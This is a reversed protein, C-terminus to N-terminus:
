EGIVTGKGAAAQDTPLESTLEPAEMALSVNTKGDRAIFSAASLLKIFTDLDEQGPKAALSFEAAASEGAPLLSMSWRVTRSTDDYALSGHSSIVRDSWTIDPPLTATMVVDELDHQSAGINWFFRYITTQDVTPPLPGEGLPANTASFYRAESVVAPAANMQVTLPTTQISTDASTAFAVITWSDVDTVAPTKAIPFSLSFSKKEGPAIIGIVSNSFKVGDATLTGGALMAQDWVIPLGKGPQFDLLVSADILDSDGANEVRVAVRLVDGPSTTALDNAGNAVVTLGLNSNAVNVFWEGSAQPLDLSDDTLLLQGSFQAVDSTDSAFSGSWTVTAQEGPLIDPLDWRPKQGSPLEPTSASLIFGTPLSLEFSPTPMTESGTNTLAASFDVTQGPTAEKPGQLELTGTSAITTITATAIDSFDANFNAPRYHALVQITTTAPVSTRWVGDLLIQGDSQPGLSGITWEFNDPNTPAPMASTLEFATPLNVDLSLSALPTRRPNQYAIVLQVREGSKIDPPVNINMVLPRDSQPKSIFTSYVFFAAYSVAAVIALALVIRTLLKTFSRPERLVTKLDSRDDGYIARLGEDLSAEKTSVQPKQSKATLQHGNAPPPPPLKGGKGNKKPMHGPIHEHHLPM